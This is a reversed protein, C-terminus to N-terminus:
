AAPHGATQTIWERYKAPPLGLPNRTYVRVNNYYVFVYRFIITKVQERTMHYTPMRYLKEKKLTAFFSEMRANDFCHGTGSLSQTIGNKLLENRFAESTYQSGRDSHLIVGDSLKHRRCLSKVTDICLEKKMNDRMELTLIEGSFCDMIPSVYLKGDSCPVETIDTLLKIYPTDASFDRRILNEQEQIETTAKTIGHPRRQHHILSSEQMTHYVTRLSIDIGNQKLATQMRRVGYNDNDPHESLIEKIKVLLLSRGNQKERNRLWRYYGSESVKLVRCMLSVPYRNRFAAM